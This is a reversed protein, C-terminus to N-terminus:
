PLLARVEEPVELEASGVKDFTLTRKTTRDFTREGFSGVRRVEFVASVVAGDKVTITYTGSSEMEMEPAEDGGGRGAGAAGGGGGGRPGRPMGGRGALSDVGAPSLAGTYVVAGDRSQKSVDAVKGEFGGLLDAPAEVAMLGFLARGGGM